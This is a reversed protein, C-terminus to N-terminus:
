PVNGFSTGIEESQGEGKKLIEEVRDRISLPLKELNRYNKEEKTTQIATINEGMKESSVSLTPSEM